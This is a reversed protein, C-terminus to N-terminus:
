IIPDNPKPIAMFYRVAYHEISSYVFLTLSTLITSIETRELHVYLTTCLLITFIHVLIRFLKEYASDALWKAVNRGRCLGYFNVPIMIAAWLVNVAILILSIYYLADQM